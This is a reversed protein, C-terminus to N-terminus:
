FESNDEINGIYRECTIREICCIFRALTAGKVCEFMTKMLISVDCWDTSTFTTTCTTSSTVSTDKM